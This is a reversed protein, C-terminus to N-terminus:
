KQVIQNIEVTYYPQCMALNQKEQQKATTSFCGVIRGTSKDDVDTEMHHIVNCGYLWIIYRRSSKLLRIAGFCEAASEFDSTIINLDEPGLELLM